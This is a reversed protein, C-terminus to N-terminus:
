RCAQSQLEVCATDMCPARMPHCACCVALQVCALFFLDLGSPLELAWFIICTFVVSVTSADRTMSM